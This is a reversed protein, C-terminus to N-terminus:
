YKSKSIAKLIDTIVNKDEITPPVYLQDKNVIQKLLNRIIKGSRTKPLKDVILVEKLACIRGIDDIVRKMADKKINELNNAKRDCVIFAFPVEGKLKDRMSVVACESIHECKAIVEEIRGTSLRHGAVKIMDDDRGMICIYGEKTKYGIDGSIYMKYDKTIYRKIFAKDNNFLTRMFGPPLPLCICVKGTVKDSTIENKYKEDMIKINFGMQPPGAVGPSLDFPSLGVNNCGIPWGSETQWWQDNLIVKPGLGEKIWKFTEPDCREGSLHLSQLCNINYLHMKSYNPDDQKIARLATPATYFAKVKYKNIIEWCKGSDPTGVPKGEFITTTAGRMLPGYVIFVHGVIWGIDSTSFVVDGQNVNMIYKMTFNITVVSSYDRVIGKPIGSTGSTYLIFFIDSGKMPEPKVYVDDQILNVEDNYIITNPRDIEIDNVYLADYRQILLIKVQNKMKAIDIAKQVIPYYAIKRKPEIGCSAAIVMKPKSDKIREALEPASFGGFVVSHVAGIRCCALMSIIGEPITPMYIIVRDGKQIGNNLLIYSLKNIMVFMENYTISITKNLYFSEYIIARTNGNGNKIHRDICNYCMNVESLPFWFYFPSTNDPHLLIQNKKPPTVWDIEKCQEYWFQERTSPDISRKYMDYYVDKNINDM